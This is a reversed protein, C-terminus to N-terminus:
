NRPGHTHPWIPHRGPNGHNTFDVDRIQNGGADFWRRIKVRGAHDVIDVSSNAVGQLNSAQTTSHNSAPTINIRQGNNSIVTTRGRLLAPDVPNGDFASAPVTRAMAGAARQYLLWGGRVAGIVPVSMLGTVLTDRWPTHVLGPQQIISGFTDSFLSHSVFMTGNLMTTRDVGVTFAHTASGHSSSITVTATSTQENWILSHSDIWCWGGITEMWQKLPILNDNSMAFLGLPDLWRVPNHMVFM